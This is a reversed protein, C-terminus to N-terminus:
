NYFNESEKLKRIKVADDKSDFSGVFINSIKVIWKNLKEDFYVGSYGSKNNKYLGKNRANIKPTCIRLNNKRNNKKDRDIHDIQYEDDVDMIFRHLLVTHKNMTTCIYGSPTERWTYPSIMDIDDLDVVFVEDSNSCKVIVYEGETNLYLIKNRKM